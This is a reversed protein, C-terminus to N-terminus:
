HLNNLTKSFTILLMGVVVAVLFSALTGLLFYEAKPNGEKQIESFRFVSKAAVLFGIAQFQGSLIFILILIREVIGIWASANITLQKDRHSDPDTKTILQLFKGVLIGAPTTVMVFGAAYIWFQQLSEAAEIHTALAALVWLLGIHIIQDAIFAFLNDKTKSKLLDIMYHVILIIPAFWWLDPQFTCAVPLIAAVSAHLVLRKSKWGNKRRCEIWSTPQLWFDAILHGVLMPIFLSNM